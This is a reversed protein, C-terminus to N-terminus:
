VRDAGSILKNSGGGYQAPMKSKLLKEREQSSLKRRENWLKVMQILCPFICAIQVVKFVLFVGEILFTLNTIKNVLSLAELVTGLISLCGWFGVCCPLCCCDAEVILYWFIWSLFYTFFFGIAVAMMGVGLSGAAKEGTNSVGFAVAFLIEVCSFYFSLVIGTTVAKETVGKLSVYTKFDMEKFPTKILENFKKASACFPGCTAM